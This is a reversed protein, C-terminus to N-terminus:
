SMSLIKNLFDLVEKTNSSAIINFNIQLSFESVSLIIWKTM